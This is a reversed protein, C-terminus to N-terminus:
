TRTLLTKELAGSLLLQWSLMVSGIPRGSSSKGQRLKRNWKSNVATFSNYKITYHETNHLTRYKEIEINYKRQCLLQLIM